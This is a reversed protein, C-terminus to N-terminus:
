GIQRKMDLNFSIKFTRQQDKSGEPFAEIWTVAELANQISKDLSSNGSRRTIRASIVSGDRSVTITVLVAPASDSVDGPANWANYYKSAIVDDYNVASFPSGGPGEIHVPTMGSANRSISSLASAFARANARSKAVAAEYRADAEDDSNDKEQNKPTKNAPKRTTPKLSATDLIDKKEKKPSNLSFNSVVKNDSPKKVQEIEKPDIKPKKDAVKPPDLKKPPEVKVTEPTPPTPPKVQPQQPQPQQVQPQTPPTVAATPAVNPNGGQTRLAESVLSPDYVTIPHFSKDVKDERVFFASGFLIVCLLLGHMGASALFCKKQLRNM